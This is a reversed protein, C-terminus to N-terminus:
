SSVILLSTQTSRTNEFRGIKESATKDSEVLKEIRKVDAAKM